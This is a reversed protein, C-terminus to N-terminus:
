FKTDWGSVDPFAVSTLSWCDDNKERQFEFLFETKDALLTLRGSMIPKENFNYYVGIRRIAPTQIDVELQKAEYKTLANSNLSYIIRAVKLNPVRNLLHFIPQDSFDNKQFHNAVEIPLLREEIAVPKHDSLKLRKILVADSHPQMKLRFSWKQHLRVKKFELLINAPTRGIEALREEFEQFGQVYEQQKPAAVFTGKGRVRQALGKLELQQIAQRITPRSIKYRALLENESPLPDGVKLGNTLIYETLIDVLQIYLPKYDNPNLDQLQELNEM